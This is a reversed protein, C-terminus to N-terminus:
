IATAGDAQFIPANLFIASADQATAVAVSKQFDNPLEVQRAIAEAGDNQRGAVAFGIQGSQDGKRGAETQLHLIAGNAFRKGRVDQKQGM